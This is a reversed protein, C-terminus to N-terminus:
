TVISYFTSVLIKEEDILSHDVYNAIDNIAINVVEKHKSLQILACENNLLHWAYYLSLIYIFAM